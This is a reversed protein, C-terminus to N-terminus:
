ASFSAPYANTSWKKKRAKKNNVMTHGEGLREWLSLSKYAEGLARKLIDKQTFNLMLKKDFVLLCSDRERQSLNPSPCM